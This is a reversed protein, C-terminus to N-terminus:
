YKYCYFVNSQCPIEGKNETIYYVHINYFKLSKVYFQINNKVLFYLKKKFVGM